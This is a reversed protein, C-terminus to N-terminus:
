SPLVIWGGSGFKQPQDVQDLPVIIASPRRQTPQDDMREAPPNPQSDQILICFRVARFIMPKRPVFALQLVERMAFAQLQMPQSPQLTLSLSATEADRHRDGIYLDSPRLM